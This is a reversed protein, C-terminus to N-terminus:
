WPEDPLLGVSHIKERLESMEATDISYFQIIEAIKDLSNRDACELTTLQRDYDQIWTLVKDYMPSALYSSVVLKIVRRTLEQRESVFDLTQLVLTLHVMYSMSRRFVAHIVKCTCTALVAGGIIPVAILGFPGLLAAFMVPIGGAMSLEQAMANPLNATLEQKDVMNTMLARFEQSHLYHHPDYFNWLNVTNTHLLSEWRQRNKSTTSSAFM